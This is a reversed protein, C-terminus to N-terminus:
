VTSKISDYYNGFVFFEELVDRGDFGGCIVPENELLGGVAGWQPSTNELLECKLKSNVLDIVETRQGQPYGTIILVKATIILFPMLSTALYFPLPQTYRSMKVCQPHGYHGLACQDCKSSDFGENCYCTTSYKNCLGQNTGALSCDCESFHFIRTLTGFSVLM